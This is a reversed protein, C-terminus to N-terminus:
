QTMQKNRKSIKDKIKRLAMISERLEDITYIVNLKNEPHHISHRIYESLSVDKVINNRSDEWKKTKALKNLEKSDELFIYGYLENHYDTTLINFVDFNVESFTTLKDPIQEIKTTKNNEKKIKYNRSLYQKDILYNSHTAFFCINNTNKTINILEKLLNIQAPPHLHTEPEDILLITNDLKQSKREASVTLLFSVFQKFGDSRQSTTKSQYLVDNDDVLLSIKNASIIFRFSVPHEPWVLNVYQTITDGLRAQLNSIASASNLTSIVNAIKDKEIGSLLFCNFLPISTKEPDRLFLNLDIEDLFLYEPSSKWFIVNHSREYFFNPKQKLFFDSFSFPEQDNQDPQIKIIKNALITYDEFTDKKFQINETIIKNLNVDASYNIEIEIETINLDNLLEEEVESSLESKIEELEHSLLHYKLKVVVPNKDDYFDQNYKLDKKDILSLGKLFSSKGSENIGLLGYTKSNDIESIKFEVREISRYNELIFSSLIM